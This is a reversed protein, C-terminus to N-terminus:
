KIYGLQKQIDKVVKWNINSAADLHYNPQYYLLDAVAREISAILIGDPRQTIGNSAYLYKPSLKRILFSHPPLDISRSVNSILTTQYTAQSIIGNQALVTECSVYAYSHLIAVALQYPDIQSIPLTSYLGKQIPILIGKQCLRSITTYLTSRNKSDWLVALDSTHFLKQPQKLLIGVKDTSM